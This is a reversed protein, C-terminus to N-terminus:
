AHAVIGFRDAMERVGGLVLKGLHGSASQASIGAARALEGAPLARGNALAILIAARVPEGILEAVAALPTTANVDTLTGGRMRAYKLPQQFM